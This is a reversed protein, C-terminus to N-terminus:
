GNDIGKAADREDAERMRRKFEVEDEFAQQALLADLKAAHVTLMPLRMGDGDNSHGCCTGMWDAGGDAAIDAVVRDWMQRAQYQVQWTRHKDRWPFRDIRNYTVCDSIANGVGVLLNSRGMADLTRWKAVIAAHIDNVRHDRLYGDFVRKRFEIHEAAAVLLRQTEPDASAAKRRLAECIDM